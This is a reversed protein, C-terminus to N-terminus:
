ANTRARHGRAADRSSAKIRAELARIEDEIGRLADNDHGRKAAMDADHLLREAHSRCHEIFFSRIRDQVDGNVTKARGTRLNNLTWFSLKIKTAIRKLAEAEDGWGGSEAKVMRRVYDASETAASSM